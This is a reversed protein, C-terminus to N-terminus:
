FSLICGIAFSQTKPASNVNVNTYKENEAFRVVDTARVYLKANNVVSEPKGSITYTLQVVPINFWNNKYMWYESNQFNHSSKTSTLRPYIANVDPNTVSYGQKLHEPYKLNGYTRFYNGNRMNMDGTQGVGLAYLEFQKVKLNFYLSYQFDASSKGIVHVDESNIVEDNNKDIYKIDGPAVSGWGPTPLSSLLNGEADFDETGYLGDTALGWFSNTATGERYQYDNTYVPEDIQIQKRTTGVFNSGLTLAVDNSFETKYKLGLEFGNIRDADYNGWFQTSQTGLLLPYLNELETILDYRETYFVSGELWLKHEFMSADFGLVLEKRKQWAIDSPRTNYNIERNQNVGNNYNFNGGTNFAMSYLFYDEWNDNKLIGASARLKLFDLMNVNAMFDEETLIWGLGLSPAFSFRNEQELKQSGLIGASFDLLYKEKHMVNGTLGFTLNKNNQFANEYSLQDRYAVAMFSVDTEGLKKDYSLNAFM